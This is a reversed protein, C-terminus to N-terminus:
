CAGPSCGTFATHYKTSQSSNKWFVRQLRLLQWLVMELITEGYGFWCFQLLLWSWLQTFCCNWPSLVCSSCRACSQSGQDYVWVLGLAAGKLLDWGQTWARGLSYPSNWSGPIGTGARSGWSWACVSTAWSHCSFSSDQLHSQVHSVWLIGESGLGAAWSYRRSM